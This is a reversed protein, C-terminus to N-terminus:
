RTSTAGLRGQALEFIEFWSHHQVRTQDNRFKDCGIIVSHNIFIAIAGIPNLDEVDAFFDDVIAPPSPELVRVEAHGAVAAAEARANRATRKMTDIM